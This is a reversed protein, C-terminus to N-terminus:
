IQNEFLIVRASHGPCVNEVKSESQSRHMFPNQDNKTCINSLFYAILRYNM